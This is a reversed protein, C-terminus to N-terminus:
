CAVALNSAPQSNGSGAIESTQDYHVHDSANDVGDLNTCAKAVVARFM